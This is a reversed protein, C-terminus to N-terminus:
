REKWLGTLGNELSSKCKQNSNNKKSVNEKAAALAIGKELGETVLFEVSSEFKKHAGGMIGSGDQAGRQKMTKLMNTDGEASQIDAGGFTLNLPQTRWKLQAGRGDLKWVKITGGKDGTAVLLNAKSDFV